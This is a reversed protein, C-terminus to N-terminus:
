RSFVSLESPASTRESLWGVLWLGVIAAAACGGQQALTLRHANWLFATTVGLLVLFVVVAWVQAARTM